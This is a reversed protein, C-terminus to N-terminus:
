GAKRDSFFPSMNSSTPQEGRLRAVISTTSVGPVVGMPLVKGGYEEVIEWGVIERRSYTGGKVLIDPRLAKLLAHPTSEEFVCIFDVAELAALLAARQDQCFIPRDPGKNLRRVSQDSNLGVILCDGMQSAQQLYSVHGAHLLDFCGNTFVVRQGESRRQAILGELTDLDVIKQAPIQPSHARLDEIMEARSIPVVGVKEVELGGAINALRAVTVPDLGSALGVGIMALVMDGAGTIDYVQRRRTPLHQPVGNTPVLVIGDADLTVYAHDLELEDCLKRGAAFADDITRVDIGTALTTELRNPTVATAGRYARYDQGPRPDVVVPVGAAKGARIISQLVHPTCVGKGYDSILIASYESIRPLLRELLFAQLEQPLPDRVERDVRLMQHPHRNQARGIFREKVTTPRTSTPIVLSSDVERANLAKEVEIGYADQGVVTALSAKAGLGSVMNAVNAAGGLRNEDQDARLLIVPAEQSVREANGWIYRDLIADGLVLTAPHGLTGLSEILSASM